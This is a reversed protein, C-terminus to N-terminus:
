EWDGVFLVEEELVVGFRDLVRHKIEEAGRRIDTASAGGANVLFNAHLHSIEAGGFRLGKCGCAESLFAAPVVGNQRMGDTLGAITQALELNKVNKFFSGASPLWPQKSIRQRQIDVAKKHIHSISAPIMELEVALLM